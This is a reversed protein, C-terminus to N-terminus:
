MTLDFSIGGREQQKPDSVKLQERITRIEGSLSNLEKSRSILVTIQSYSKPNLDKIVYSAKRIIGILEMIRSGYFNMAKEFSEIEKPSDQDAGYFRANKNLAFLGLLLHLLGPLNNFETPLVSLRSTKTEDILHDYFGDLTSGIDMHEKRILLYFHHAGDALSELLNSCYDRIMETRIEKGKEYKVKLWNGLIALLVGFIFTLIPTIISWIM